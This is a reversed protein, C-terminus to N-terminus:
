GHDPSGLPVPSSWLTQKKVFYDKAKFPSSYTGSKRLTKARHDIEILFSVGQVTNFHMWVKKLPADFILVRKPLEEASVLELYRKIANARPIIAGDRFGASGSARKMLEDPTYIKSPFITDLWPDYGQICNREGGTMANMGPGRGHHKVIEKSWRSKKNRKRMKLRKQALVRNVM